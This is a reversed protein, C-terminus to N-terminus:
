LTDSFTIAAMNNWGASVSKWNSGAAVTQVPSSKHVITNDGLQGTTNRGWTWLTGDTKIAATFYAGVSVVKWQTTGSVTQVPSSRNNVDNVGLQGNANLGWLWLTGDTRIAGSTYGSASIQKWNTAGTAEQVPSSRHTIDNVGLQGFGNHGWGWITGDTKLAITSRDGCAATKWNTSSTLEQVPSSRHVIDNKALQGQTNLGWSWLTGDTRIAVSSYSACAIFKWITSALIEQVPSSRHTIDNAGLQGNTNRGWSWITGNTKLAITHFSGGSVMRWNTAATVEQIPSSRHVIGSNTGMQGNGNLGWSWLTGDTKIAANHFAGYTSSLIKWNVTSSVTQVPSSRHVIDNAGLQGAHNHGWAWLRNGVYRDLVDMDRVFGNELNIGGPGSRFSEPM